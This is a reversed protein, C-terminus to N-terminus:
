CDSVFTAHFNYFGFTKHRDFLRPLKGVSHTRALLRGESSIKKWCMQNQLAKPCHTFEDQSQLAIKLFDSIEQYHYLTSVNLPNSWSNLMVGFTGSLTRGFITPFISILLPARDMTNTM